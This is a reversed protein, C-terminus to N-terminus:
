VYAAPVATMTRTAAALAEVVTPDFRTGAERQLEELAQAHPMHTILAEYADAVAVIRAGHPIDDGALGEPFGTGDWREHLTGVLRAAPALAPAASIIREGAAAIERSSAGSETTLTLKGAEHLEARATAEALDAVARGHRALEPDRAALVGLLAEKVQRSASARGANKQTYMRQDAIRLADDADTAEIPLSIAGYSCGIWFGDGQESLALAAGDLLTVRDELRPEFLACFEDGGMRFVKGRTGLYKSLNEGLRTLLVDGAPHGFTDNYQKFGDLDFLALLVPEDGTAGALRAELDILLSRRNPLGTLADTLAEERSAALLGRNERALRESRRFFFAFAALLLLIAAASGITAQRDSRAARPHSERGAKALLGEAQAFSYGAVTALNAANDDYTPGASGEIYVQHLIAFNSRLVSTLDTLEAPASHGLDALRRKLDREKIAIIRRAHQPSGGTSANARFPAVLDAKVVALSLESDRSASSRAQLQTVAAIALLGLVLAFVLALVKSRHTRPLEPTPTM